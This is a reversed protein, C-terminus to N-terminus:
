IEYMYPAQFHIALWSVLRSRFAGSAYANYGLRCLQDGIGYRYNFYRSTTLVSRCRSMISTGWLVMILSLWTSPAFKKLLLNSPIEFLIYPIFFSFLAINYRSANQGEM